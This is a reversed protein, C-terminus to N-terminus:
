VAYGCHQVHNLVGPKLTGVLGRVKSRKASSPHRFFFHPISARTTELFRLKRSSALRRKWSRFASVIIHGLSPVITHCIAENGVDFDYPVAVTRRNTRPTPKHHAVGQAVARGTHVEARVASTMAIRQGTGTVAHHIALNMLIIILLVGLAIDRSGIGDGIRVALAGEVVIRVALADGPRHIVVNKVVNWVGTGVATRVATGVAMRVVTRATPVNGAPVKVVVMATVAVGRLGVVTVALAENGIRVTGVQRENM